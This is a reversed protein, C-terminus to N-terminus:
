LLSINLNTVKGNEEREVYIRGHDKEYNTDWIAINTDESKFSLNFYTRIDDLLDKQYNKVKFIYIGDKDVDVIKNAIDEQTGIADITVYKGKIDILDLLDPIVTIKNM